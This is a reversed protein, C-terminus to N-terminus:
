LRFSKDSGSNNSTNDNDFSNSGRRDKSNSGRRDKSNSGRRNKSYSSQIVENNPPNIIVPPNFFVHSKLLADYENLELYWKNKQERLLTEMKTKIKKPLTKFKIPRFTISNILINCIDSFLKKVHENNPYMITDCLISNNNNKIIMEDFFTKLFDLSINLVNSVDDVMQPKYEEFKDYIENIVSQDLVLTENGKQVIKDLGELLKPYNKIIHDHFSNHISKNKQLNKIFEDINKLIKDYIINKDYIIKILEDVVRGMVTSLNNSNESFNYEAPYSNKLKFFENCLEKFIDSEVPFDINNCNINTNNKMVKLHNQFELLQMKCGELFKSALVTDTYDNLRQILLIRFKEGMKEYVFAKNSNFTGFKIKNLFSKMGARITKNKTKIKKIKKRTNAM